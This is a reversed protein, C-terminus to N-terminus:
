IVMSFPRLLIRTSRWFLGSKINTRKIALNNIFRNICNNNPSSQLATIPRGRVWGVSCAFIYMYDPPKSNIVHNLDTNLLLPQLSKKSIIYQRILFTMQKRYKLLLINSWFIKTVYRSAYFLLEVQNNLLGDSSLQQLLGEM